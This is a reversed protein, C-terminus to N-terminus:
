LINAELLNSTNMSEKEKIKEITEQMIDIREQFNLLMASLILQDKPNENLAIVLQNFDEEVVKIKFIADVILEQYEPTEESNLKNLENSFNSAFLSQTKAMEPSINALNIETNNSNSNFILLSILLVISAAVGIFPKIFSQKLSFGIASNAENQSKLKSLFRQKHNLRPEEIDFDNEFKKFLNDINVKSM